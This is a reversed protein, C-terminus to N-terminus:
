YSKPQSGTECTVSDWLLPQIRYIVIENFLVVAGVLLWVVNIRFISNYLFVIMASARVAFECTKVKMLKM